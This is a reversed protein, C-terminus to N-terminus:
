IIRKIFGRISHYLLNLKIRYIRRWKMVTQNIDVFDVEKFLGTMPPKIDIDPFVGGWKSIFKEQDIQQFKFNSSRIKPTAHAFHEIFSNESIEIRYGEKKLKYCIDVDGCYFQYNDEDAFGIKKLADKLYLGHNINTVGWFREIHYKQENPWNRFYFAIAGINADNRQLESEFFHYGNLIAGPVVLCDDSLMCVYKGQACRFGLNIFYGWSRQKIQRGKWDGRNHQVITVIDKQEILWEASGDTSGGDIVIIEYPKHFNSLEIRISEITLKLFNKRNYSGLVITLEKFAIKNTL